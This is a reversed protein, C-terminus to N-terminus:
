CDLLRAGDDPQAGIGLLLRVGRHATTTAVSLLRMLTPLGERYRLLAYDRVFALTETESRTTTGSRSAPSTRTGPTSSRAARCRSRRVAALVLRPTTLMPPRWDPPM